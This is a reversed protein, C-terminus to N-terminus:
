LLRFIHCSESLDSKLIKLNVKEFILPFWVWIEPGLNKVSNKAWSQFIM